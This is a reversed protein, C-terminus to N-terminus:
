LHFSVYPHSTLKKADIFPIFSPYDEVRFEKNTKPSIFEGNPHKSIAMNQEQFRKDNTQNLILCMASVIKAEIFTAAQLSAIHM